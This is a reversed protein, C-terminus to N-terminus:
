EGSQSDGRRPAALAALEATMNARARAERERQMFETHFVTRAALFRELVAARGTRWGESSVHAYESRIGHVYADYDTPSAGLVALDADVLLASALDSPAHGATTMVLRHVLECRGSEWGLDAAVRAALAASVAENDTRTADYVADHYLAALRLAAVDLTATRADADILRQLHRLVWVVHVATHYRRHPERLRALLADVHQAHAAGAVRHWATRLEVEPSSM